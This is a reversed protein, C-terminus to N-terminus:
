RAGGPVPESPSPSGSPSQASRGDREELWARARRMAGGFSAGDRDSIWRSWDDLARRLGAVVEPSFPNLAQIGFYLDPDELLVSETTTMQARFTTSGIASLEGATRGSESLARAFLLNVLHSLGLLYAALRDHEELSLHVITAATEDFLAKVRANAAQDGCDCLCVVKDSLVRAGPGFMPHISTVAVGRSRADAFDAALHSKLSAIDFVTGRYGLRTIERVVEGVRELSVAVLVLSADALGDALSAAVPFESTGERRDFVQVVHGQNALFRAFWRGMQGLGGVILVREAEGRSGSFHDQEQVRCAEDILQQMVGRAIEPALGLEAAHAEARSLVQKEVAFDRLPIGAQQKAEGIDRALSMREAVLALVAADLRRIRQRLSELRAPPDDHSSPPVSTM